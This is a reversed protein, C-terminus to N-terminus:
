KPGVIGIMTGEPDHIWAFQRGDPTPLPGVRVKGGLTKTREVAKAVDDVEVYIMMYNHPEHGLSTYAGPIGKNGAVVENSYPNIDPKPSWGFLNGYFEATKKRDRCGIEFRVVPSGMLTEKEQLTKRFGTEV